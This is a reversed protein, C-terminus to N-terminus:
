RFARGWEQCLDEISSCLVSLRPGRSHAIVNVASAAVVLSIVLAGASRALRARWRTRYPGTM